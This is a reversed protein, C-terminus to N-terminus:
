NLVFPMECRCGAISPFTSCDMHWPDRRYVRLRPLDNALDVAIKRYADLDHAILEGCGLGRLIGPTSRGLETDGELTVMPVGMWMSHLTTTGGGYPFPDFAFDVTNLFALFSKLPFFETVELQRAPVGRKAFEEVISARVGADSGGRAIVVLHAAPLKGLIKSWLDKTTETVKTWQNLSAITVHGNRLAPLEGVDPSEADPQFCAAAPLRFLKETYLADSAGPPDLGGDTLRYDISTLGTTNMYGFWSVQVPASRRAFVLLRNYATHGSLDVLIDIQQNRILSAVEDDTREGLRHWHDVYGRLRLTVADEAYPSVDFAHIEFNAHDHHRLVGEIFYAVAHQRLDASVYGVRLKREPDKSQPHARWASRLASEHAAGWRRHEEFLQARSMLGFYNLVFLRDSQLRISDPSLALARDFAQIAETGRGLSALQDGIMADVLPFDPHLEKLREFTELALVYQNRRYAVSGRCNLFAPQDPSLALGRDCLAAAGELDGLKELVVALQHMAYLQDPVVALIREYLPRAEVYRKSALLADADRQWTRLDQESPPAISPGSEDARRSARKRRLREFM